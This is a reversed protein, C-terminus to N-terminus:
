EYPDYSSRVQLPQSRYKAHAEDRLDVPKRCGYCLRHPVAAVVVPSMASDKFEAHCGPCYPIGPQDKRYFFHGDFTYDESRFRLKEKLERNEEELAIAATKLAQIGDMLTAVQAKSERDKVSHYLADAKSYLDGASKM